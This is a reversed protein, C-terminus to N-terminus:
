AALPPLPPNLTYPLQINHPTNNFMGAVRAWDLLRAVSMPGCGVLYQGTIYESGVVLGRDGYDWDGWLGDGTMSPANLPASYDLKPNSNWRIDSTIRQANGFDVFTNQTLQGSIRRM